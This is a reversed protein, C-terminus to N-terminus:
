GGDCQDVVKEAHHENEAVGWGTLMRVRERLDNFRLAILPAYCGCFSSFFSSNNGWRGYRGSLVRELRRPGSRSHRCSIFTKRM